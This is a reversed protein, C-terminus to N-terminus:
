RNAYMVTYRNSGTKSLILNVDSNGATEAGIVIPRLQAVFKTSGSCFEKTACPQGDIAVVDLVIVPKPTGDNFSRMEQRWNKVTVHKTEGEELTLYKSEFMNWNIKM